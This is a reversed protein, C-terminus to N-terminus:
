LKKLQALMPNIVLLTDAGDEMEKEIKLLLDKNIKIWDVADDYTDNDILNRGAKREPINNISLSFCENDGFRNKGIFNTVKIRPGHKRDTPGIWISVNIGTSAPSLIAM